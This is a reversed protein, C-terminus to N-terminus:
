GIEQFQFEAGCSCRIVGSTGIATPVFHYSYRGGSVGCAKMRLNPTTLNHKTAEHNEKWKEIATHEEKTIPFGLYYEEKMLSLQEQMKKLEKDKFNEEKLKCNEEILHQIQNENDQVRCQIAAICDELSYVKVFQGNLYTNYEGKM